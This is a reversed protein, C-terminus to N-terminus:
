EAGAEAFRKVLNPAFRKLDNWPPLWAASPKTKRGETVVERVMRSFMEVLLGEEASVNKLNNFITEHAYRKLLARATQRYADPLRRLKDSEAAFGLEDWIRALLARTM